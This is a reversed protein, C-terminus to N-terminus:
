HLSYQLMSNDYFRWANLLHRSPCHVCKFVDFKFSVCYREDFLHNKKKKKVISGKWGIKVTVFNVIWCNIAAVVSTSMPLQLFHKKYTNYGVPCWINTDSLQETFFGQSCWNIVFVSVM